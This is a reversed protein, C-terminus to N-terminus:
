CNLDPILRNLIDRWALVSGGYSFVARLRFGKTIMWIRDSRELGTYMINELPIHTTRGIQIHDPYISMPEGRFSKISGAEPTVTIDARDCLIPREKSSDFPLSRITEYMDGTLVREGSLNDVMTSDPNMKWSREGHIQELRRAGSELLGGFEGTDPDRYLLRTVGVVPRYAWAPKIHDAVINEDLAIPKQLRKLGEALSPQDSFDIPNCIEVKIHAPRPWPAWRPWGVYSGHIRVPYVPIGMRMFLKATSEIWPIPRGSWRRGGEPFIVIRRKQDAMKWIRRILHPEPVRKQTGEIGVSTFLKALPGSRLYEMTMIGTTCGGLQTFANYIFPDYNNSHNGYIFCPGEPLRSAGVLELDWCAMSFPIVTSRFALETGIQRLPPTHRSVSNSYTTLINMALIAKM